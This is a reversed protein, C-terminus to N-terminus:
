RVLLELADHIAPLLTLITAAYAVPLLMMAIIRWHKGGSKISPGTLEGELAQQLRAVRMEVASGIPLLHSAAMEEGTTCGKQLAVMKVLAAALDLASAGGALAAEDAAVESLNMWADDIDAGVLWRPPRTIRLLLQKVNDYFCVHAVEHALAASLEGPSLTQAVKKAVFIRPRFFGTVALLGSRGDVYYLPLQSGGANIRYEESEARWRREMRVTAWLVRLGRVAMVMLTIAGAASLLLLRASMSEGSSHPEYKLFAPLALGLTLGLALFFPLVRVAFLVRAAPAPTWSRLRAAIMGRLARVLLSASSLALFMVALCVCIALLYFMM